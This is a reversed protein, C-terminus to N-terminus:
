MEGGASKDAGDAFLARYSKAARYFKSIRNGMKGRIKEYYAICEDLEKLDVVPEGIAATLAAKADPAYDEWEPGPENRDWLKRAAREVIAPSLTTM